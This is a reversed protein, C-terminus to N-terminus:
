GNRQWSQTLNMTALTIYAPWDQSYTKKETFTMERTETVTGDSGRERKLTYEVAYIHKCKRGGQCDPCSCVQNEVDVSYKKSGTQSPVTWIGDKPSLKTLAAIVLGREERPALKM